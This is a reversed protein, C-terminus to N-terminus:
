RWTETVILRERALWHLIMRDVHISDEYQWFLALFWCWSLLRKNQIDVYTSKSLRRHQNKITESTWLKINKHTPQAQLYVGCCNAIKLNWYHLFHHTHFDRIMQNFGMLSTFGMLGISLSGLPDLIARASVAEKLFIFIKNSHINQIKFFIFM